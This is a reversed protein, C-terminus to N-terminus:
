CGDCLRFPRSHRLNQDVEYPPSIGFAIPHHSRFRLFADDAVGKADTYQRIDQSTARKENNRIAPLPCWITRKVVELRKKHHEGAESCWLVYEIEYPLKTWKSLM